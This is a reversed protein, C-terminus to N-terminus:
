QPQECCEGTMFAVFQAAKGYSKFNAHNGFRGDKERVWVGHTYGKSALTSPPEGERSFFPLDGTSRIEMEPLHYNKTKYLEERTEADLIRVICRDLLACGGDEGRAVLLPIKLQCSSRGISGVVDNEGMWCRGTKKDGYFVRLRGGELRYRELIRRVILPTDHDFWTGLDHSGIARCLDQYIHYQRITGSESALVPLMGYPLLGRKKLRREIEEAQRYVFDFGLSTIGQEHEIFFLSAGEQLTVRM